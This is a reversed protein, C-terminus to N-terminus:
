EIRSNQLLLDRAEQLEMFLEASGGKDPHARLSQRRFARLVSAEDLREQNMGLLRRAKDTPTEPAAAAAPHTPDEEDFTPDADVEADAEADAAAQFAEQMEWAKALTWASARRVLHVYYTRGPKSRSQAESWGPPLRISSM